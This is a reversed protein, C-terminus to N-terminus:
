DLSLYCAGFYRHSLVYSNIRIRMWEFNETPRPTRGLLEWGPASELIWHVKEKHGWMRLVHSGLLLVIFIACPNEGTEDCFCWVHASVWPRNALVLGMAWWLPWVYLHHAGFLATVFLGPAWIWRRESALFTVSMRPKGMYYLACFKVCNSNVWKWFVNIKM